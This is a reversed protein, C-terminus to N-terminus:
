GAAARVVESLREADEAECLNFVIHRAGADVYERVRTVCEEPTGAVCHRDVV